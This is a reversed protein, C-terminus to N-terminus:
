AGGIDELTVSGGDPLSITAGLQLLLSAVDLYDAARSILEGDMEVVTVGNLYFERNTAVGLLRPIPRDQVGSLLWEVTAVTPSAHVAGVDMRLDTAWRTVHGVYASIEELGRYQTQNSFDEYVADPRFLGSLALRDGSEWVALLARATMEARVTAPSPGEAPADCATMMVCGVVATACGLRKM